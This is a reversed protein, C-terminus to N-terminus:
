RLTYLNIIARDKQGNLEQRGPALDLGTPFFKVAHKHEVVCSAKLTTTRCMRMQQCAM